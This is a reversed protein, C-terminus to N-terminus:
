DEKFSNEMDLLDAMDIKMIDDPLNENEVKNSLINNENLLIANTKYLEKNEMNLSKNIDRLAQIDVYDFEEECAVDNLNFYFEEVNVIGQQVEVPVFIERGEKELIITAKELDEPSFESLEHM